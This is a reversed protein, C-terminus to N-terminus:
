ARDEELLDDTSEYVGLIFNEGYLNVHPDRLPEPRAESLRLGRADIVYDWGKIKEDGTMQRIIEMYCQAAENPSLEVEPSVLGKESQFNYRLRRAFISHLMFHQMYESASLTRELRFKSELLLMMERQRLAFMRQSELEMQAIRLMEIQKEAAVIRQRAEFKRQELSVLMQDEELKTLEKAEAKEECKDSKPRFFQNYFYVGVSLLGAIVALSIAFRHPVHSYLFASAVGLIVAINTLWDYTKKSM